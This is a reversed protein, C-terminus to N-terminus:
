VVWDTEFLGDVLAHWAKPSQLHASGWDLDLAHEDYARRLAEVCKGRFVRSLGKVPLFFGAHRPPIWAARAASLGGAPVVCHVHPHRVLTQGWTHLIRLVGIGAISGPLPGARRGRCQPTRGRYNM